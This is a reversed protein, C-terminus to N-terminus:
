IKNLSSYCNDVRKYDDKLRNRWLVIVEDFFSSNAYKAMSKDFFKVNKMLFNGILLEQILNM